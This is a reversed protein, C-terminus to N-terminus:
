SVSNKKFHVYFNQKKVINEHIYKCCSGHKDFVLINIM